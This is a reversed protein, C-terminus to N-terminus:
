VPPEYGSEGRTERVFTAALVSVLGLGALIAFLSAYAEAPYIMRGAITVPTFRDLVSGALTSAFGAGVYCLGNIIAISSGSSEPRNLEKMLAASASGGIVSFALLVFGLLFVWPPAKLLVAALMILTALVVLCGAAITAPKRRHGIWRLSIGGMFSAASSCVIMFLIFTSATSAPLGVMDELFKKGLVSQFIFYVPFNILGIVLLPLSRRNRLIELVPTLSWSTCAPCFRAFTRLSLFAFVMCLVTLLGIGVLSQRWGFAAVARQFPLTGAIAGMYGISTVVGLLAAFHRKDFLLDLEKAISLFMFSGGFGTIFRTAYLMEVTRSLPFLVAGITMITGGFLLARRGGLRDTTLGVFLQMCGYIYTFMAGLAVVASAPLAMDTQIENFITGPIASRQFYSLFYIVLMALLAIYVQRRSPSAAHAPSPNRSSPPPQHKM